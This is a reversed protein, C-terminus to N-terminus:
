ANNKEKKEKKRREVEEYLECAAKFGEMYSEYRIREYQCKTFKSKKYIDLLTSIVYAIGLVSLITIGSILCALGIVEESM